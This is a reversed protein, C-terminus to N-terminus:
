IVCSAILKHGASIKRVHSGAHLRRYTRWKWCKSCTTDMVHRWVLYFSEAALRYTPQTPVKDSVYLNILYLNEKTMKLKM